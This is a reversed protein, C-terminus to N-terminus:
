SKGLDCKIRLKDYSIKYIQGRSALIVTLQALMVTLQLVSYLLLYTLLYTFPRDYVICRLAHRINKRRISDVTTM